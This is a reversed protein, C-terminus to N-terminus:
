LRYSLATVEFLKSLLDVSLANAFRQFDVLILWRRSVIIAKSEILKFDGEVYAPVQNLPNIKLYESSHQEGKYIDVIKVQINTLGLNRVALLAVRSPPSFFHHYLIGSM